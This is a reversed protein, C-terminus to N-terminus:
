DLAKEVENELEEEYADLNNFTEDCGIRVGFASICTTALRIVLIILCLGVVM